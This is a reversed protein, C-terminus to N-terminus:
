DDTNTGAMRQLREEVAALRDSYDAQEITLRETVQETDTLREDHHKLQQESWGMRVEMEMIKNRITPDDIRSMDAAALVRKSRAAARMSKRRYRHGAGLHEESEVVRYGVGRVSELYRKDHRVMEVRCRHLIWRDDRVDEGPKMGALENLETWGFTRGHDADHIADYLVRWMAGETRLDLGM